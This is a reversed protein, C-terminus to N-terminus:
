AAQLPRVRQAIAEGAAARALRLDYHNQLNLWFEPEIGFYLGLRLATDATISRRGAIIESIRNAPVDLDRALQSASIGNPEMFEEKLIEGPTIPSLTDSM